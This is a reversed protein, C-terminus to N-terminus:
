HLLTLWSLFAYILFLPYVALGKRKDSVSGAIFPVGAWSAWSMALLLLVGRAYVNTVFISRAACWAHRQADLCGDAAALLRLRRRLVATV